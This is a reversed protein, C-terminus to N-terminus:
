ASTVVVPDRGVKRHCSLPHASMSKHSELGRIDLTRGVVFWDNKLDQLKALVTHDVVRASSLDVVVKQKDDMAQLRQKLWIWTTFVLSDIANVVIGEDSQTTKINPSFISRFSIGRLLHLGLEVCTGILIGVLLDTALVGVITAVFVFLQDIGLKYSHMFEKYSALRSGTYVLMAALAALPIRHILSPLLGLFGLLFLGHFMNSFKTRAGNDINARSRVIESIMPLGGLLAAVTNAVGVALLDRDFNTKRKWPDLLDVAKASLVSELSGILCFMVIWFIGTGTFVKSFDPTAIAGLLSGPVAVLFKESVEYQHGGLTYRHLQDINLFYAMTVSVAVVVLPGPLRSLYPIKVYPWVFLIALCTLGILAIAPNMGHMISHPIEAILHLPEKGQATAGLMLHSQKAMIIVGIAALMGHVVTTPFVESIVGMKCLALLIQIVGAVVGVALVSRYANWQATPDNPVWGFALACGAVIVILGAAPGKITLQSNTLFPTLIGGVIATIVGAVPPFCSANAIALCLPLAILFVLFGATADSKLRAQWNGLEPVSRSAVPAHSDSM